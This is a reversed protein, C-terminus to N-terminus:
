LAALAATEAVVHADPTDDRALINMERDFVVYQPRFPGDRYQDFVERDFDGLV